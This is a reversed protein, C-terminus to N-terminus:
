FFSNSFLSIVMLAIWRLKSCSEVRVCTEKVRRMCYEGREHMQVVRRDQGTRDQGRREEGRKEGGRRREERRKEERRREEGRKRKEM